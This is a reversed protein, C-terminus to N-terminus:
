RRWSPAPDFTCPLAHRDSRSGGAGAFTQCPTTRECNNADNGTGSFWSRTSAASAPAAYFVSIAAFFAGCTYTLRYLSQM